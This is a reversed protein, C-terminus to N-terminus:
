IEDRNISTSTWGTPCVKRMDKEGQSVSERDEVRTFRKEDEETRDVEETLLDQLNRNQIFYFSERRIGVIRLIIPKLALFFIM